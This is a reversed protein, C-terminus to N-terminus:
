IMLKTVLNCSWISVDVFLKNWPEDAFIETLFKVVDNRATLVNPPYDSLHARSIPLGEGDPNVMEWDRHNYDNVISSRLQILRAEVIVHLADSVPFGFTLVKAYVFHYRTPFNSIRFCIVYGQCCIAPRFPNNQAM